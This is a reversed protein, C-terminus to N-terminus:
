IQKPRMTLGQYVSTLIGYVLWYLVLAAPMSYFIFGFLIPMMFLMIKQQEAAVGTSMTASSMKQQIFTSFVMLIPLLNIDSGILPLRNSLTIIRDPQSLDKIWLFSAGRLEVFRMLAQYLAFFIPIQLVLPLCGSLPNVKHEKYLAMTEKNLKQADTKYREQLEKIKPQLIQMERMSRMQKISLPYLIFFIFVGFLLVAVGWNHVIKFILKLVSLLIQSIADFPGFYLISDFDHGAKALAGAEQPGAYIITKGSSNGSIINIKVQPDKGILNVSVNEVQTPPKVMFAFYRDRLGAWDFGNSFVVGTKLGSLDKRQTKNSRFVALQWFGDDQPSQHIINATLWVPSERPAQGNYNRTEQELEIIYSDNSLFYSKKIEKEGNKFSLTVENTKQQNAGFIYSAEESPLLLDQAFLYTNYKKFWIKHIYGGPNAISVKILNNELDIYEPALVPTITDEHSIGRALEPQLSAPSSLSSVLPIAQQATDGKNATPYMRSIVQSYVFLVVVSLVIAAITRKEM